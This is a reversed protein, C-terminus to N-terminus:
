RKRRTWIKLEEFKQESYYNEDTCLAKDQVPITTLMGDAASYVLVFKIKDLYNALNKRVTPISCHQATIFCGILEKSSEGEEKSVKTTIYETNLGEHHPYGQVIGVFSNTPEAILMGLDIITSNSLQVASFDNTHSKANALCNIHNDRNFSNRESEIAWQYFEELSYFKTLDSKSNITSDSKFTFIGFEQEPTLIDVVIATLFNPHNPDKLQMQVNADSNSFFVGLGPHSHVWCTLDYQLNTERRLKRLKERVKMKIKGGFNLEYEAFVADDGPLVIHELSVYYENTESDFVWRGLVMCGDEKPNDPNRLDEAYMNYIDKICTNKIYIRRVASDQCFDNCDIQKYAPNDIVDELSQTKLIATTKRRVIIASAAQETSIQNSSTNAAVRHNRNKKSAKFFWLALAFIMLSLWACLGILKWDLQSWASNNEAMTRNVCEELKTINRKRYALKSDVISAISDVAADRNQIQYQGYNDIFKTTLSTQHSSHYDLSDKMASIQGELDKDAIFSKKDKWNELEYILQNIQEEEEQISSRNYYPQTEIFNCFEEVLKDLTITRGYRAAHGNSPWTSALLLVTITIIHRYKNM